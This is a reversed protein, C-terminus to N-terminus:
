VRLGGGREFCLDGEREDRIARRYWRAFACDCNNHISPCQERDTAPLLM